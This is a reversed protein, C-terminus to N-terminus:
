NEGAVEESAPESKPCREGTYGLEDARLKCPHVEIRRVQPKYTVKREDKKQEGSALTVTRWTTVSWGIRGGNKTHEKEPDLDPNPLRELPPPEVEMMKSVGFAVQRHEKDGYLRVTITKETYETKILVGSHTDNRFVLDPKPFSLTAEHGMPYRDFWYTHARREQIELGSRLLANYFTTAFQSVGGGITDVMEGDEISPAMVFGNALTRPGITENVSFTAGPLVIIGDLLDAIRHINNVRPQCCAHRTTFVGMLEHIGLNGVDAVKLKAEDGLEVDILVRTEGQQVARLIQEALKPIEFRYGRAEPVVTFHSGNTVLLSANKAPWAPAIHRARLVQTLVEVDFGLEFQGRENERLQLMRGLDSRLLHAKLPPEKSEILVSTKIYRNAQEALSQLQERSLKPEVRTVPLSFGERVLRVIDIELQHKVAERQIVDGPEGPHTVIAGREWALTASKPPHQISQKQWEDLVSYLVAEPCAVVADIYGARRTHVPRWFHAKKAREVRRTTEAVDIECGLQSLKVDFLADAVTVRLSHEQFQRWWVGLTPAVAGNALSTIPIDDLWLVPHLRDHLALYFASVLGMSAVGIVARRLLRGRQDPGPSWWRKLWATGVRMSEITKVRFAPAHVVM